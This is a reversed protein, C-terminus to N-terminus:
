KLSACSAFPRLSTISNLSLSIVQASHTFLALFFSCYLLLTVKVNALASIASVDDINKAWSCCSTLALRQQHQQHQM